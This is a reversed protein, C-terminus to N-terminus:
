TPPCAVWVITRRGSNTLAKRGSDAVLGMDVLESRRTRLGSPSAVTSLKHGIETDTLGEPFRKLLDLIKMRTETIKVARLSKAAEHSTEPDTPRALTWPEPVPEEPDFLSYTM